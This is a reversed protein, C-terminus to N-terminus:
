PQVPDECSRPGTRWNRHAPAARLYVPKESRHGRQHRVPDTTTAGPRTPDEQALFRVETEEM